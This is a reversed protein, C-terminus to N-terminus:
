EVVAASGPLAWRYVSYDIESPVAWHEQFRLRVEEGEGPSVFRPSLFLQLRGKRGARVLPLVRGDVLLEATKGAPRPLWVALSITEGAPVGLPLDAIRWGKKRAAVPTAQRDRRGTSTWPHFLVTVEDGRCTFPRPSFRIGSDSSKLSGSSLVVADALDLTEAPINELSKVAVVATRLPRGPMVPSIGAEAYILRARQPQPMTRNLFDSACARTEPVVQGHVYLVATVALWGLLIGLVAWRVRRWALAGLLFDAALLSTFPLIQLFHNEKFRTTVVAYLVMYAVPYSLFVLTRLSRSRAATLAGGIVACVGTLPGHFPKTFPVALTQWLVGLHSGTSRREYHGLNREFAAAEVGVYPNFLVFTAAAVLGSLLLWLVARREKRFLAATGLVLPIAVLAGNLKTAICLGVGLGALLYSRLGPKEVADLIWLFAVVTCLLLLIDPKFIVSAHLHRETLSLLLAGLIAVPESFLRRGLLYTAFLSLTGYLTQLLRCLFYALPSFGAASRVALEEWGTARHLGQVLALLAAQPLYSLGQYYANSPRLSGDLVAGANSLNIQEDWFRSANLESSALWLRLVFSAALILLLWGRSARQEPM